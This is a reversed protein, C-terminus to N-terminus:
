RAWPKSQSGASQRQKVAMEVRDTPNGTVSIIAPAAVPVVANLVGAVLEHGLGKKLEEPLSDFPSARLYLAFDHRAKELWSYFNKQKLPEEEWKDAFNEAPNVPNVVWAVGQRNEIFEHMHTLISQLAGAITPENNYTRAALTTIIISIPKHEGNKAFM